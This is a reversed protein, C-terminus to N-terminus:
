FGLTLGIAGITIAVVMNIIKMVFFSKKSEALLPLSGHGDQVISNAILISIPIYGSIFLVLFLLHPGSEPIIGVLVAIVLILFLNDFVWEGFNTNQMLINILLMIVFTWMLIKPLHKIVLHGWVHVNVFHKSGSVVILLSIIAAIIVAFSVWDFGGEHSHDHSCSHAGCSHVSQEIEVAKANLDDPLSFMMHHGHSHMIIGTSTGAITLFLAVIVIIRKFSFNFNKLSFAKFNNNDLCNENHVEFKFKHNEVFSLKPFFRDIFFGTAFALATLILFIIIATEPILALMFFAEDGSTAIMAAVMAGFSLVRHTYLSVVTFVGMCGPLAGLLVGAIIQYRPKKRLFKTFRGKSYVNIFEIILMMMIVFSTILLTQQVISLWDISAM